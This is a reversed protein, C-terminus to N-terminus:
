KSALIENVQDQIQQGGRSLYRQQMAYLESVDLEGQIVKLTTAAVDSELDPYDAMAPVTGWFENTLLYQNTIAIAKVVDQTNYRRDTMTQLRTPNAFGEAYLNTAVDYPPIRKFKGNEDWDWHVGRIGNESLLWNEVDLSFWNLLQMLLEPQECTASIVLTRWSGFAPPNGRMGAPGEVPAFTVLDADPVVARLSQERPDASDQHWAGAFLVGIKSNVMKEELNKSNMVPFEPDILGEKYWQQLVAVAQVFEETMFGKVAKGDRMYWHTPTIGFANYVLNLGNMGIGIVDNTTGLGWTDKQGNGDPDNFTFATLVDHLEDLTEPTKLNLRDLWDQRLIPGTSTSENGPDAFYYMSPLGWLEGDYTFADLSSPYIWPLMDQGYTNVLDTLPIIVGQNKWELVQDVSGYWMDPMNNGGSIYLQLKRTYDDGTYGEVEFAIGTREVIAQISLNEETTEPYGAVMTNSLIRFPRKQEIKEEALSLSCLSLLIACVLISALVKKM